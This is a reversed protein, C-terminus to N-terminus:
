HPEKTPAVVGRREVQEHDAEAVGPSLVRRVTVVDAPHDDVLERSAVARREAALVGALESFCANPVGLHRQQLRLRVHIERTAGDGGCRPEVLERRLAHEDNVVLTVEVEPPQLRADATPEGPVVAQARDGLVQARLLEPAQPDAHAPRLPAVWPREGVEHQRVEPRV